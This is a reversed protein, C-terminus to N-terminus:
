NIQSYERRGQLGYFYLYDEILLKGEVDLKDRGESQLKRKIERIKRAAVQYSTSQLIAFETITLVDKAFIKEREAFTLENLM